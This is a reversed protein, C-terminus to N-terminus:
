PGKGRQGNSGMPTSSPLEGYGFHKRFENDTKLHRDYEKEFAEKTWDRQREEALAYPNDIKPPPKYDICFNRFTNYLHDQDNFMKGANVELFAHFHIWGKETMNDLQSTFEFYKQLEFIRHIKDSAYTKKITVSIKGRGHDIYGKSYKVKSHHNDDAIVVSRERERKSLLGYFRNDLTKCSLIMNDADFQLLDLSVCYDMIERLLDPEVDFDGAIIEYNVHLRFNDADTILELIMCWIGYGGYKFKRRLAKIKPDDRMDADHSFYDANNKLPRAM